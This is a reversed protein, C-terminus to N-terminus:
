RSSLRFPVSKAVMGTVGVWGAADGWFGVGVAFVACLSFLERRSVVRVRGASRSVGLM